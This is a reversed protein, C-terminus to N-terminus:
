EEEGERPCWLPRDPPTSSRDICIAAGRGYFQRVLCPHHCTHLWSVRWQVSVPDGAHYECGACSEPRKLANNCFSSIKQYASLIQATM